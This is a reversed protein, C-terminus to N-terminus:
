RGGPDDAARRREDDDDTRPCQDATAPLRALERRRGIARLVGFVRHALSGSGLQGGSHCRLPSCDVSCCFALPGAITQRAERGLQQTQELLFGASREWRYGRARIFQRATLALGGSPAQVPVPVSPEPEASTLMDPDYQPVILPATEDPKNKVM